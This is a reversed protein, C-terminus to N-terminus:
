PAVVVALLAFTEPYICIPMQVDQNINASYGLWLTPSKERCDERVLLSSRPTDLYRALNIYLFCGFSFYGEYM